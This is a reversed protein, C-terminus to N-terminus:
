TPFMRAVTHMNIIKKSIKNSLIEASKQHARIPFPFSVLAQLIRKHHLLVTPPRIYFLMRRMILSSQEHFNM